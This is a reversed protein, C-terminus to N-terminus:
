CWLLCWHQKKQHSIGSAGDTGEAQWIREWGQLSGVPDGQGQSRHSDVASMSSQSVRICGCVEPVLRTKM